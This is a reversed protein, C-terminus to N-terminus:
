RPNRAPAIPGGRISLPPSAPDRNIVQAHLGCAADTLNATGGGHRRLQVGFVYRTGPALDVHGYHAGFGRVSPGIQIVHALGPTAATWNAGDDTSFVTSLRYNGGVSGLGDTRALLMATQAYPATYGITQCVVPMTDLDVTGLVYAADLLRPTMASSLRHLFVALQGRTVLDDPCYLGATCGLTVGRNRLWEAADHYLSGAPVDSFVHGASVITAGALVAVILM